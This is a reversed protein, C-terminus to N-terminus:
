VAHDNLYKVLDGISGPGDESFSQRCVDGNHCEAAVFFQVVDSLPLDLWPIEAVAILQRITM